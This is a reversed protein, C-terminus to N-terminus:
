SSSVLHWNLHQKFRSISVSMILQANSSSSQIIFYYTWCVAHPSDCPPGTHAVSMGSPPRTSRIMCCCLTNKIQSTLFAFKLQYKGVTKVDSLTDLEHNQFSIINYIHYGWSVHVLMTGDPCHQRVCHQTGLSLWCRWSRLQRQKRNWGFSARDHCAHSIPFLIM